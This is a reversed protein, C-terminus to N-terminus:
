SVRWERWAACGNGWQRRGCVEPEQVSGRKSVLNEASAAPALFIGPSSSSGLGSCLASWISLAVPALGRALLQPCPGQRLDGLPCVLFVSMWEGMAQVPLLAGCHLPVSHSSPGSSVSAAHGPGRGHEEGTRGACGERPAPGGSRFAAEACGPTGCGSTARSPSGPCQARPVSVLMVIVQPPQWWFLSIPGM